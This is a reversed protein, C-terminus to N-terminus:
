HPLSQRSCVSNSIAPPPAALPGTAGVARRGRRTRKGGDRLNGGGAPDPLVPLARDRALRPADLAPETM